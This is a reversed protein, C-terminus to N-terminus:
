GDPSVDRACVPRGCHDCCMVPTLPHQCPKHVLTLPPGQKGALWRDGWNMLALVIPYIDLGKETLRYTIRRADNKDRQKEMIGNEVLVKLRHSLINTAIGLNEQFQDFHRVRFFAERLIMFIWRDGLIGLTREVSCDRPPSIDKM